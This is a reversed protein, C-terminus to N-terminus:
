YVISTSTRGLWHAFVVASLFALVGSTTALHYSFDKVQIVAAAAAIARSYAIIILISASVLLGLVVCKVRDASNSILGRWFMLDLVTSLALLVISIILLAGAATRDTNSSAFLNSSSFWGDTAVGVISFITAIAALISTLLLLFTNQEM